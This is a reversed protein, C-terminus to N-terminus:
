RTRLERRADVSSGIITQRGGFRDRWAAHSLMVVRDAGPLEEDERFARGLLPAVGLISFMGASARAAALRVPEGDILLNAATPYYGGIGDFALAHDRFERFDPPSSAWPEIVVRTLSWVTVLREADPYPLPRLLVGDVVCVVATTGGIGLALTLVASFSFGPSRVLWRAAYRLDALADELLRTGRADRHDERVREVGGFAIRAARWAEDPSMGRRINAETEMELHFRIEESLDQEVIGRRLVARVRGRLRGALRCSEDSGEPRGSSSSSPAPTSAGPRRRAASTASAWRRSAIMNARGITRPSGEWDGTVWGRRELRMLAPYLSGQAVDLASRSLELIRQAIGWGHMPELDLTKLVLLDLTGQLVDSSTDRPM